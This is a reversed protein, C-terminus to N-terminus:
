MRGRDIVLYSRAHTCRNASARDRLARRTGQDWVPKNIPRQQRCSSPRNCSDVEVSPTRMRFASGEGSSARLNCTRLQLRLLVDAPYAARQECTTAGINLLRAQACSAASKRWLDYRRTCLRLLFRLEFCVVRPRGEARQGGCASPESPCPQHVAASCAAARCAAAIPSRRLHANVLAGRLVVRLCGDFHSDPRGVSATRDLVRTTATTSESATDYMIESSSLREPM